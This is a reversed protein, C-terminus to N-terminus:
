FCEVPFCQYAEKRRLTASHAGLMGLTVDLSLEAVHSRSAKLAPGRAERLSSYVSVIANMPALFVSEGKKATTSEGNGQDTSDEATSAQVPPAKENRRAHLVQGIAKLDEWASPDVEWLDDGEKINLTM